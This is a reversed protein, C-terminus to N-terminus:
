IRGMPALVLVAILIPGIGGGRYYGRGLQVAVDAFSRDVHRDFYRHITSLM